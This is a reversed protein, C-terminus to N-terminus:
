VENALAALRMLDEPTRLITTEEADRSLVLSANKRLRSGIPGFYEEFLGDEFLREGVDLEGCLPCRVEYYRGRPKYEKLKPPSECFPCKTLDAM